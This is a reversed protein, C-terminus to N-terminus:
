YSMAVYPRTQRCMVFCFVVLLVILYRIRHLASFYNSFSDLDTTMHFRESDDGEQTRAGGGEGRSPLSLASGEEAYVAVVEMWM